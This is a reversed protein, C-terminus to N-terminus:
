GNSDGRIKSPSFDILKESALGAAIGLVIGQTVDTSGYVTLGEAVGIGVALLPSYRAPFGVKKALGVLAMCLAVAGIGYLEFGM